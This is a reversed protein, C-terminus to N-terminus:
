QLPFPSQWWSPLESPEVSRVWKVWWFGRRGPVVLRVPGGNDRPLPAGDLHTALLLGDVDGPAFRRSYGTDSRVVVSSTGTPLPGLVDSLRVGSWRNVAYWGSTCDLSCTVDHVPLGALRGAWSTPDGPASDNLWSTPVPVDRRLSGTAARPSGVAGLAFEGAAALATLGALRLFTRRTLDGRRPRQPRNALHVAILPVLGLALGIHWGLTTLPGLDGAGFAHAIGTALTAVALAALMLALVRDPRARRIGRRAIPVKWRVLAIVAIGAAGHLFVVLGANGISVLLALVGSAFALGLAVLLTLNARRTV